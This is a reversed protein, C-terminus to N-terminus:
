AMRVKAVPNQDIWEWEKIALNFAKQSSDSLAAKPLSPKPRKPAPKRKDNNQLTIGLSCPKRGSTEAQLKRKVM